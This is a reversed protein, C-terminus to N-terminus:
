CGKQFAPTNTLQVSDVSLQICCVPEESVGLGGSSKGNEEALPERRALTLIFPFSEWEPGYFCLDKASTLTNGEMTITKSLNGFVRQNILGSVMIEM